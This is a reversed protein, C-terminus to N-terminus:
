ALRLGVRSIRVIMPDDAELFTIGLEFGQRPASALAANVANELEPERTVDAGAFGVLYETQGDVYEVQFLLAGGFAKALPRLAGVLASQLSDPFGKPATLARLRSAGESPEAASAAPQPASPAPPKVANAPVPPTATKQNAPVPPTAIKQKSPVPPSATKQNSLAPTAATKSRAVATELVGSAPMQPAPRPLEPEVTTEPAPEESLEPEAIDFLDRVSDFSVLRPSGKGNLDIAIVARRMKVLDFLDRSLEVLESGADVDIDSAALYGTGDRMVARSSLADAVDRNWVRIGVALSDSMSLAESIESWDDDLSLARPAPAPDPKVDVQMAEMPDRSVRSNSFSRSGQDSRVVFTVRRSSRFVADRREQGTEGVRKM